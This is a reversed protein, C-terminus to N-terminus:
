EEPDYTDFARQTAGMLGQVFVGLAPGEPMKQLVALVSGVNDKIGDALPPFLRTAAFLAFGFDAWGPNEEGPYLAPNDDGPWLTALRRAHDRLHVVEGVRPLASLLLDTALTEGPPREGPVTAWPLHQIFDLTTAWIAARTVLGTACAEAVESAGGGPLGAGDRQRARVRVTFGVADEGPRWPEPLRGAASLVFEGNGSGDLAVRMQDAQPEATSGAVTAYGNAGELSVVAEGFPPGGTIRGSATTTYPIERKAVERVQEEGRTETLCDVEEKGGWAGERDGVLVPTVLRVALSGPREPAVELRLIRTLNKFQAAVVCPGFCTYVGNSLRAPVVYEATAGDARSGFVLHGRPFTWTIPAEEADLEGDEYGVRIRLPLRGAEAGEGTPVPLRTGAPASMSLRIPLYDVCVTDEVESLPRKVIAAVEVQRCPETSATLVVEARGDVTTSSDLAPVGMYACWEVKTGDEVPNGLRDTVVVELECTSRGDAPLSLRSATLRVRHAYDHIVRLPDTKWVREEGSVCVEVRVTVGVVNPNELSVKDGEGQVTYSLRRTRVDDVFVSIDLATGTGFGDVYLVPAVGVRLVDDPDYDLESDYGSRLSVSQGM